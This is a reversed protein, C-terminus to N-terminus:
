KSKYKQIFAKEDQICEKYLEDIKKMRDRYKDLGKKNLYYYEKIWDYLAHDRPINFYSKILNSAMDEKKIYRIKKM